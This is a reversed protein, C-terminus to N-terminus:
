PHSYLAKDPNSTIPTPVGFGDIMCNAPAWGKEVLTKPNSISEDLGTLAMENTVTNQRGLWTNTIDFWYYNIQKKVPKSEFGPTVASLATLMIVFALLFLPLRTQKM